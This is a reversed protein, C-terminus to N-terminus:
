RGGMGPGAELSVDPIATFQRDLIGRLATVAATLPAPSHGYEFTVRKTARGTEVEVWEAGGDACDPCGYMTRLGQFGSGDFTAQLDTWTQASSPRSAVVPPVHPDWSLQTLKLLAPTVDFQSRCYGVCMGFSTGRSIRTVPGGLGVVDGCGAALLALSLLLASRSRM